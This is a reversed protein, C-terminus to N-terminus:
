RCRLILLVYILLVYTLMSTLLGLEGYYDFGFPAKAAKVGKIARRKNQPQLLNKKVIDPMADLLEQTTSATVIFKIM